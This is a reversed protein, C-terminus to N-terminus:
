HVAVIVKASVHVKGKEGIGLKVRSDACYWKATRPPIESLGVCELHFWEQECDKNECGILKASPQVTASASDLSMLTVM